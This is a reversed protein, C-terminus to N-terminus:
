DEEIPQALLEIFSEPMISEEVDSHEFTEEPQSEITKAEELARRRINNLYRKPMHANYPNILLGDAWRKLWEAREQNTPIYM